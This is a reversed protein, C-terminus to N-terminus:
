LLQREMSKIQEDFKGLPNELIDSYRKVTETKQAIEGKDNDWSYITKTGDTTMTKTGDTNIQVQGTRGTIETQQLIATNNYAANAFNRTLAQNVGDTDCGVLAMRKIKTNSNGYTQQLIKAKNALSQAGERSLNAGHDVFNVRI